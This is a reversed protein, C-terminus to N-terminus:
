WWCSSSRLAKVARSHACPFRRQCKFSFLYIIVVLAAKMSYPCSISFVCWGLWESRLVYLRTITVTPFELIAIISVNTLLLHPHVRALWCDASTRM